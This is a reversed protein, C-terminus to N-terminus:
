LACSSVEPYNKAAKLEDIHFIIGRCFAKGNELVEFTEHPMDTKYTWEITPTGSETEECWIAEVCVCSDRIAQEHPCYDNDCERKWLDNETFAIEGGGYVDEEGEIAGRIEALDDSAGYIVVLGVSKLWDADEESVESGINRGNLRKKAELLLEKHKM